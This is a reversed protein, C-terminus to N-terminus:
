TFFIYFYFDIRVKSVKMHSLAMEKAGNTKAKLAARKYEIQLKKVYDIRRRKEDVVNDNVNVVTESPSSEALDILSNESPKTETLTNDLKLTKTPRAPLKPVKNVHPFFDNFTSVESNQVPKRHGTSSNVISDLESLLTDDNEDVIEDDSNNEIDFKGMLKQVDFVDELFLFQYYVFHFDYKNIVTPLVQRSSMKIFMKRHFM